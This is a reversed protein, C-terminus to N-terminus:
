KHDSMHHKQESKTWHGAMINTEPLWWSLNNYLGKVLNHIGQLSYDCPQTSQTFSLAVM